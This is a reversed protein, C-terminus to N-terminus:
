NVANSGPHTALGNACCRNIAEAKGDRRGSKAAGKLVEKSAASPNAYAHFAALYSMACIASLTPKGELLESIQRILLDAGDGISMAMEENDM